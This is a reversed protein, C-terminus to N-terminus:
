VLSLTSAPTPIELPLTSNSTSTSNSFLPKNIIPLPTSSPSPSSSALVLNDVTVTQTVLACVAQTPAKTELPAAAPAAPEQKVVTTQTAQAVEEEQQTASPEAVDDESEVPALTPEPGAQQVSSSSAPIQVTSVVTEEGIVQGPVSASPPVTVTATVVKPTEAASSTVVQAADGCEKRQQKCKVVEFGPGSFSICTKYQAGCAADCASTLSDFVQDLVAFLNGKKNVAPPMGGLSNKFSFFTRIITVKHVIKIIKVTPKNNVVKINTNSNNNNKGGNGANRTTTQTPPAVSPAVPSTTTTITTSSLVPKTTSLAAAALTTSSAAKKTTTLLLNTTTKTKPPKGNDGRRTTTTKVAVFSSNAFPPPSSSLIPLSESISTEIPSETASAEIESTQSASTEAPSTQAISTSNNVFVSTSSSIESTSTAANAVVSTTSVDQAQDGNGGNGGGGAAIVTFKTCDDQAGRQAVPMLVLQHNSASAMTCVRYNGAPLGGPVKASLLGNGNGADNIGKFFVFKTADLPQKPNLNPGMDQVTVHTHGVIKGGQLAQPASYYTLQANTFSGAVFNIM